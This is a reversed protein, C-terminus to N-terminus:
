HQVGVIDAIVKFESFVFPKPHIIFKGFGVTFVHLSENDGVNVLLIGDSTGFSFGSLVKETVVVLRLLKEVSVSFDNVNGTVRVVIEVGIHRVCIKVIGM